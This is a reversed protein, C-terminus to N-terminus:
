EMRVAVSYTEKVSPMAEILSRILDGAQEQAQRLLDHDLANKEAKFKIEKRLASSDELTVNSFLSEEEIYVQMSDELLENSLIAAKPLSVIISKVDEDATIRVKSVDVGAKLVGDMTVVASKRSFPVEWNTQMFLDHADLTGVNTYHYEVVALEGIGKIEEMLADSDFM